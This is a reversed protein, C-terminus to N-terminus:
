TTTMSSTYLSDTIHSINATKVTHLIQGTWKRCTSTGMLGFLQGKHQPKPKHSTSNMSAPPIMNKLNITHGLSYHNQCEIEIQVWMNECDTHLHTAEQALIYNKIAIFVGGGAQTQRDRRFSTYGLDLNFIENDYHKPKLWSETGIVIDPNSSMIM